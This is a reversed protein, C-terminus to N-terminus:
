VHFKRLPGQNFQTIKVIAILAFLLLLAIFLFFPSNLSDMLLFIETKPPTSLSPAHFLTSGLILTVSSFKAMLYFNHIQNPATATFYAFMVLLGGVYILFTFMALWASAAIAIFVTRAIALAMVWVGLTIPSSAFLIPITLAAILSNLTLLTV